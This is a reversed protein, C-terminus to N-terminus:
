LLYTYKEKKELKKIILKHLEEPSEKKSVIENKIAGGFTKKNSFKYVMSALGRQYEDNKPNKAIDFAKGHM